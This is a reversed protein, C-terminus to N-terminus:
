AASRAPRRWQVLSRWQWNSHRIGLWLLGLALVGGHLLIIFAAFGIKGTSIWAQGLNLMNLYVQFLLLSFVLNGSRGLRPNVRSAAVAIILLNLAALAFGLRWSIEGWHHPSPNRILDLTSRTGLPVDAASGLQDPTIRIGYRAFESLKFDSKGLSNEM